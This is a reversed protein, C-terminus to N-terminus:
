LEDKFYFTPHEYGECDKQYRKVLLGDNVMEHLALFLSLNGDDYFFFGSCRCCKLILHFYATPQLDKIIEKIQQDQSIRKESRKVPFTKRAKKQLLEKFSPQSKRRLAELFTMKTYSGDSSEQKSETQKSGDM